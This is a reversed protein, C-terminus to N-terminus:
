LNERFWAVILWAPSSDFLSELEDMNFLIRLLGTLETDYDIACFFFAGQEIDTADFLLDLKIGGVSGDNGQWSTLISVAQSGDQFQITQGDFAMRSFPGVQDDHVYIKDIRTAKLLFSTNEFFTSQSYGLSYGTIAVAHKGIVEPSSSSVDILHFGFMMPIGARLYAYLTAKLLYHNAANVLYPELGVSKIAHAMEISTLGNLKATGLLTQIAAARQGACESGAFLWNKKGLAIPRICNEV